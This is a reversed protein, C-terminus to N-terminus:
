EAGAKERVADRVLQRLPAPPPTPQRHLAVPEQGIRDAFCGGCTGDTRIGASPHRSCRPQDTHDFPQLKPTLNKPDAARRVMAVALQWPDHEEREARLAAVVGPAQWDPRGEAIFAALANVQRDTM